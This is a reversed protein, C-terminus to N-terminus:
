NFQPIYGLYEGRKGGVASAFRRGEYGGTQEPTTFEGYSTTGGGPLIFGGPGQAVDMYDGTQPVYGGGDSLNPAAGGGGQDYLSPFQGAYGGGGDTLSPAGSPGFSLTASAVGPGPFTTRGGTGGSIGTGGGGTGGSSAGGLNVRSSYTWSADRALQAQEAEFERQKQAEAGRQAFAAFSALTTLYTREAQGRAGLRQRSAIKEAQVPVGAMMTTGSLGGSVLSQQGGAIAEKKGQEIEQLSAELTMGGTKLGALAEQYLQLFHKSMIIIEWSRKFRRDIKGNVM